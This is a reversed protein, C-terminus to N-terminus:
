RISYIVNYVSAVDRHGTSRQAVTVGSLASLENRSAEQFRFEARDIMPVGGERFM